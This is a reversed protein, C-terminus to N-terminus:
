RVNALEKIRQQVKASRRRGATARKDATITVEVTHAKVTGFSFAHALGCDCCSFTHSSQDRFRLRQGDFLQTYHVSTM